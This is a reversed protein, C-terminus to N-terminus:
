RGCEDFSAGIGTQEQTLTLDAQRSGCLVLEANPLDNGNARQLATAPDFGYKIWRRQLRTKLEDLPPSVLVTVAFVDALSTWPDTNLLLYNGEVVVVPTEPHVAIANAISLDLQRDFKPFFVERHDSHLGKIAACFGIADFSDPAGKRALLGRTELLRNDLHWGDMPVLAARPVPSAQDENLSQVATEALRSKGSAPPGAIAVVIRSKDQLRANILECVRQADQEIV